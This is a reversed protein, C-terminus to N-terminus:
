ADLLLAEGDAPLAALAWLSATAYLLAPWLQFLLRDLSSQLHGHLESPTFLYIFFFLLLCTAVFPAAITRRGGERFRWIWAAAVAALAAGWTGFDMTQLVFARAVWFVRLPALRLARALVFRAALDNEPALRLKFWILLSLPAAAGALLRILARPGAAVGVALALAAAEFCGENKTLAALGAALGAAAYRGEAALVVAVLLLMSLKLDAYQNWAQTLFQPTGLLLLLAATGAARGRQLAVARWLATAGGMAFLASVAVPVVASRSRLAFWGHAVLAPLLPPYDGHQVEKAFVVALEHPAAFLDRARLNWIARADWGGDPYRLSHEVFLAAVILGAAVASIRLWSPTAGAIALPRRRLLWPAAALLLILDSQPGTWGFLLLQAAFAAGSLALGVVVGAGLSGAIAVGAAIAAALSIAIV